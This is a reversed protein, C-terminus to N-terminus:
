SMRATTADPSARASVLKDGGYVRVLAHEPAPSLVVVRGLQPPDVGNLIHVSRDAGFAISQISAFSANPPPMPVRVPERINSSCSPKGVDAADPGVDNPSVDRPGSDGIDQAPAADADDTGADSRTRDADAPAVQISRPCAALALSLVSMTM